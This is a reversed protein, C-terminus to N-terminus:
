DRITEYLVVPQLSLSIVELTPRLQAMFANWDGIPTRPIFVVDNPQLLQDIRRDGKLVLRALDVSIIEPSNLNGRIVRAEEFRATETWGGAQGLLESLTMSPFFPVPGPRKVEGLLFVRREEGAVREPVFVVDGADLVFEQSLDGEQVFRYLNVTYSTSGRTVRIRDLSANAALGGARAIVELLTTRGTLPVTGIGGRPALGVAGLISVKKSNFEKVQVDVQPNRFYVSLSRTIEEAAQDATLGDVRAEAFSVSIRGNSRVLVQLREQTPGRTVYVDLVDGPGIRYQPVGDVTVFARNETVPPPLEQRVPPAPPPLPQPFTEPNVATAEPVPYTTCSVLPGLLMVLTLTGLALGVGAGRGHTHREVAPRCAKFVRVGKWPFVPM